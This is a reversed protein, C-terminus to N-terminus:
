STPTFELRLVKLTAATVRVRADIRYGVVWIIQEPSAVIPVCPRWSRPIRADIMFRNLKKVGTMGLPQFLDAPRPARVFLRSGARTSDLHATFDGANLAVESPSLVKAKITWGPLRTLGPIKLATEGDLPPYPCVSTSDKALVYRDYEIAFTLGFPLGIVRGAPKELAGLLDEIHGAEIDKLSGLASAVAHRLIYRQLAPPLAVLGNKDIIV